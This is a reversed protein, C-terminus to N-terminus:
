KRLAAKSPSPYAIYAGETTFSPEYVAMEKECNPGSTGLSCMCEFGGIM